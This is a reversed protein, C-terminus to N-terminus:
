DAIALQRGGAKKARYMAQDAEHLAADPAVNPDTVTAVGVSVAVRHHDNGLPLPADLAALIREAM